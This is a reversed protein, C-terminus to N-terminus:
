FCACFTHLMTQGATHHSCHSFVLLSGQSIKLPPHLLTNVSILKPSGQERKSYHDSWAARSVEGSDDELHQIGFLGWLGTWREKLRLICILPRLAFCAACAPPRHISLGYSVLPDELNKLSQAAQSSSTTVPISGAVESMGIVLLCRCSM